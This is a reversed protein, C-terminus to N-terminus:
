SSISWLVALVRLVSGNCKLQSLDRDTTPRTLFVKCKWLLLFHEGRWKTNWIFFIQSIILAPHLQQLLAIMRSKPLKRSTNESLANHAHLFGGTHPWLHRSSWNFWTTTRIWYGLWTLTLEDDILWDILRFFRIRLIWWRFFQGRPPNAQCAAQWPFVGPWPFVRPWPFVGPWPFVRKVGFATEDWRGEKTCFM